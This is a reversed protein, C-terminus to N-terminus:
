FLFTWFHLPFPGATTVVPFGKTGIYNTAKKLGCFDSVIQLAVFLFHKANFLLQFKEHCTQGKKNVERLNGDEIKKSLDEIKRDQFPWSSIQPPANNGCNARSRLIDRDQEVDQFM